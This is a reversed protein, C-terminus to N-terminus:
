KDLSISIEKNKMDFMMNLTNFINQADTVEQNLFQQLDNNGTQPIISLRSPEISGTDMNPSHDHIYSRIVSGKIDRKDVFPSIFTEPPHHAELFMKEKNFEINEHVGEYWELQREYFEHDFIANNEPELIEPVFTCESILKQDNEQQKKCIKKEKKRIWKEQREEFTERTDLHLRAIKKPQFTCEKMARDELERKQQIAVQDKISSLHKNREYLERLYMDREESDIVKRIRSNDVNQNDELETFLVDRVNTQSLDNTQSNYNMNCEDINNMSRHRYGILNKSNKANERVFDKEGARRRRNRPQLNKPSGYQNSQL